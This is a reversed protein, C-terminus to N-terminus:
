WNSWHADGVVVPALVCLLLTMMIGLVSAEGSIIPVM